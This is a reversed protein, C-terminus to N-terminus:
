EKPKILAEYPPYGKLPEFDLEHHLHIDYANRPRPLPPAVRRGPGERRPGGCHWGPLLRALRTRQSRRGDAGARRLHAAGSRSRGSTRGARRSELPKWTSRGDGERALQEFLARAEDFRNLVRLAVALPLAAAAAQAGGAAPERVVARGSPALAQSAEVHRSDAVRRCDRDDDPRPQGGLRPGRHRRSRGRRTPRAGRAGPGRVVSPLGPGPPLARGRRV